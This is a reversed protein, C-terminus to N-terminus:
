KVKFRCVLIDIVECNKNRIENAHNVAANIQNAGSTQPVAVVTVVVAVIAIVMLSLKSKIKM